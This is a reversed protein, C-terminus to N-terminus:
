VGSEAEGKLFSFLSVLNKFVKKERVNFDVM